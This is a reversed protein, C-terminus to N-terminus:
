KIKYAIKKVKNNRQLSKVKYSMNNSAMKDVTVRGCITNANREMSYFIDFPNPGMIATIHM